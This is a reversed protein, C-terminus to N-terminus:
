STLVNEDLTEWWCPGALCADRILPYVAKFADGSRHVEYHCSSALKPGSQSLGTLSCGETDSITNGIHVEIWQRGPVIIQPIGKFFAPGLTTLYKQYIHGERRLVLQYRGAPKRPHVPTAPGPELSFCRRKGDLLLEGLTSLGDHALRRETFTMESM